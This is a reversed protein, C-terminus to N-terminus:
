YNLVTVLLAKKGFTDSYRPDNSWYSRMSPQRKMGMHLFVSFLCYSDGISTPKWLPKNPGKTRKRLSAILKVGVLNTNRVFSEMIGGDLYLHLFDIPMTTCPYILVPGPKTKPKYKPFAPPESRFKRARPGILDEETWLDDEHDQQDPLSGECEDSEDSSDYLDPMVGDDISSVYSGGDDFDVPHNRGM